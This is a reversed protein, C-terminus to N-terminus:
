RKIWVNRFRVPSGIDQLGIPGFNVKADYHGLGRHTTAGHLERKDHVLVGNHYLTLLAPTKLKGDKFVSGELLHFRPAQFYVDFTQWEGPKRCANVLPPFQGYVSACQGDAYIPNQYSDLIQVDYVGLLLLSSNGRGLGSGMIEAPSAWELHLHFDVFKRNTKLVSSFIPRVPQTKEVAHGTKSLERAALRQQGFVGFCGDQVKWRSRGPVVGWESLDSGDFLVVAEEPPKFPFGKQKEIPGPDVVKPYPRGPDHVRWQGGPLTPTDTYGPREESSNSELVPIPPRPPEGTGPAYTVILRPRLGVEPSESSHFVYRQNGQGMLLLGENASRPAPQAWNWDHTWAPNGGRDLGGVATAASWSDLLSKLDGQFELDFPANAALPGSAKRALAPEGYDIGATTPGPTGSAWSPRAPFGGYDALHTWTVEHRGGGIVTGGCNGGERWASNAPSLRYAAVGGGTTANRCFLRLTVKKIRSYNLHLSSLDFRILGFRTNGGVEFVPCKGFNSMGGAFPGANVVFTDDTGTYNGDNTFVKTKEKDEKSLGVSALVLFSPVFLVLTPLKM